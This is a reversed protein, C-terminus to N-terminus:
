VKRRRQLLGTAALGFGLLGLTGPEPAFVSATSGLEIDHIVLSGGAPLPMTFPLTSFPAEPSSLLFTQSQASWTQSDFFEGFVGTAADQLEFGGGAYGIFGPAFLVAFLEAGPASTYTGQGTIDFSVSIPPYSAVPASPPDLDESWHFTAVATFPTSSFPAGDITGDASGTFTLTGPDAEAQGAAGGVLALALLAAAWTKSMAQM